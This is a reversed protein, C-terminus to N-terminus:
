GVDVSPRTRACELGIPPRRDTCSLAPVYRLKWSLMHLIEHRVAMASTTSMEVVAQIHEWGLTGGCEKAAVACIFYDEDIPSYFNDWQAQPIHQGPFVITVSFARNKKEGSRAKKKNSSSAISQREAKRKQDRREQKAKSAALDREDRLKQIYAKQEANPVKGTSLLRANM